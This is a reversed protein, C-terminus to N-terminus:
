GSIRCETEDEREHHQINPLVAILNIQVFNKQTCYPVTFFAIVTTVARRDGGFLYDTSTSIFRTNMM